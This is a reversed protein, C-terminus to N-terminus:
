TKINHKKIYKNLYEFGFTVEWFEPAWKNKRLTYTFHSINKDWHIDRDMEDTRLQLEVLIEINRFLSIFRYHLSQYWNKKPSIIYDKKKIYVYKKEFIDVFKKLDKISKFIIRTWLIDFIDEWNKRKLKNYISFYTKRRIKTKGIVKVESMTDSLNNLISILHEWPLDIKKLKRFYFSKTKRYKWPFLNKFYIEQFFWLFRSERLTLYPILLWTFSFYNKKNEILQIYDDWHSLITVKICMKVIFVENDMEFICKLYNKKDWLMEHKYSERIVNIRKRYYDSILTNKINILWFFLLWHLLTLIITREDKAHKKIRIISDRYLPLYKDPIDKSHSNLLDDFIIQLKNNKFKLNLNIM